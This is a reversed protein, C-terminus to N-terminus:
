PKVKTILWLFFPAGIASTMLGVPVEAPLAVVRALLDALVMLAGGALASGMLLPKHRVGITFRVIHPVVLGVFSIIGSVAVGAGVCIASLLVLDRKTAKVDVGLHFAENEGLQLKDLSNSKTILVLVASVMALVCPVTTVWHARGFSGMMWFILSRLQADNSIYQFIGIGVSSLANFAIGVLLVTVIRFQGYYNSFLYLAGTVCLSGFIAAMPMTFPAFAVPLALSSGLVIM